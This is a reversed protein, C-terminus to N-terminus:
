TKPEKLTPVKSVPLNVITTRGDTEVHPPYSTAREQDHRDYEARASELYSKVTVSRPPDGVLIITQNGSSDSQGAALVDLLDNLSCREESETKGMPCVDDHGCACEDTLGEIGRRIVEIIARGDVSGSPLKLGAAVLRRVAEARSPLDPQARRWADLLTVWEPTVRMKFTQTAQQVM